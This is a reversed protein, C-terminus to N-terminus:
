LARAVLPELVKGLERLAAEAARLQRITDDLSLDNRRDFLIQHGDRVKALASLYATRAAERSRVAEERVIRWEGLAAMGAPDRSRRILLSYHADIASLAQADDAAAAETVFQRLADTMRVLHPHVDGILRSTERQRWASSAARLLLDGAATVVGVLDPAIVGVKSAQSVLPNTNFSVTEDAALSGLTTMYTGIAQQLGELGAKQNQRLRSQEELLALRDPPFFARMRSPHAVYGDIVARSEVVASSTKAFDRVASLDTCAAIFLPFAIAAVISSLRQSVM